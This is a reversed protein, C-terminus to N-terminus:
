SEMPPLDAPPAEARQQVPPAHPLWYALGAAILEAVTWSLRLLLVVLVAQAAADSPSAGFRTQLEPVLLLTLFFERVGLGSPVVIIVFGMVYGLGMIAMMRGLFVLDWPEASHIVGQLAAALSVGMFGWGLGGWGMGEFLGTWTTAPLAASDVDRFPLSVRDVIRNFVPPTVWFVIGLYLGSSLLVLAGRHLEVSEPREMKLLQIVTHPDFPETAPAAFLAFMVAALLVGSSQTVLVEYFSSMGAISLRIGPGGALGARMVLAWAKGPLYKGLMGVFYARLAVSLTPQQGLRRLLRMWYLAFCGLALVYLLGSLALWGFHFSAEFLKPNERLDRYFRRGIAFLIALTLLWKIVSWYKRLLARM